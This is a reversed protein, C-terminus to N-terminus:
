AQRHYAGEGIVSMNIAATQSHCPAISTVSCTRTAACGTWRAWEASLFLVKTPDIDLAGYDVNFSSM